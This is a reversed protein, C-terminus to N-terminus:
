NGQVAPESKLVSPQQFIDAEFEPPPEIRHEHLSTKQLILLRSKIPKSRPNYCPVQHAKGLLIGPRLRSVGRSAPAPQPM